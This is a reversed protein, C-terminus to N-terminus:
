AIFDEVSETAEDFLRSRLGNEPVEFCWILFVLCKILAMKLIVRLNNAMRILQPTSSLPLRSRFKRLRVEFKLFIFLSSYLIYYCTETAPSDNQIECDCFRVTKPELLNFASNPREIFPQSVM